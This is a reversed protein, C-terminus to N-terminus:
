LIDGSTSPTMALVIGSAKGALKAYHRSRERCYDMIESISQFKYSESGLAISAIPYQAILRDAKMLWGTSAAQHISDSSTLLYELDSEQFLTSTISEGLKQKLESKNAESSSVAM